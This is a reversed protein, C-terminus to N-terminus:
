RLHFPHYQCATPCEQVVNNVKANKPLLQREYVFIKKKTESENVCQKKKEWMCQKIKKRKCMKSVKQNTM